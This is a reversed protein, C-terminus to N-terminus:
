RQTWSEPPTPTASDRTISLFGPIATANKTVRSDLLSCRLLRKIKGNEFM